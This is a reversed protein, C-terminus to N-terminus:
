INIHSLTSNLSLFNDSVSLFMICDYLILGGLLCLLGLHTYVLFCLWWILSAFVSLSFPSVSLDVIITPFKLVGSVAVSLVVLCFILFPMSSNFLYDVM